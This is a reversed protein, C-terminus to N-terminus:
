AKESLLLKVISEHGGEAAAQLATRGGSRAAAANVEAKESLLLKVILEHGGGAAAQLLTRGEKGIAPLRIYAKGCASNLIVRLADCHDDKVLQLIHANRQRENLKAFSEPTLLAYDAM